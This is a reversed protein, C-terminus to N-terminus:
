EITAHKEIMDKEKINLAEMLEVVVADLLIGVSLEFLTGLPALPEHIGLLQRSFYDDDSAKTVRGPIVVKVDSLEGLRSNPYSTLSIVKAGIKKAVSAASVTFTTEGSGSVALLIDGSKLSPTITEGIVFVNFGLHMLRMAFSKAVLGSRGAGVVGIMKKKKYTEILMKVFEELQNEQINNEINENIKRLLYKAIEKAEM